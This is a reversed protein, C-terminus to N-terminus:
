RGIGLDYGLDHGQDYGLDYGHDHHPPDLEIAYPESDPVSAAPQLRPDDPGTHPNPDAIPWTGRARWTDLRAERDQDDGLTREHTDADVVGTLRTVKTEARDLSDVADGVVRQTLTVTATLEARRKRAFFGVNGLDTEATRLEDALRDLHRRARDREERARNLDGQHHRHEVPVQRAPHAADAKVWAAERAAQVPPDLLSHAARERGSTAVARALQALAGDLDPFPLQVGAPPRAAGKGDVQGDTPHPQRRDPWSRAATGTPTPPHHHPGADGTALEPATHVHNEHRGRTMAVYLHERDLGARALVVGIDATAGQAGDITAAWGYEAHAALYGPPLTTTGRGRLDEVVLGGSDTAALVRFRDGNRLTEGGIPVRATNKKAILVDGARWTRDETQGRTSASRTAVRVLDPGTVQGTAVAVARARANLANVDTWARALMLADHGHDTATRWRDFVADAADESSAEPHVRGRQAYVDLVTPDGARLRLTAAAEWPNAFRHLETLEIVQAGLTHTLHEFMGGPANVAGIQAPDGVLVLPTGTNVARATLHDLDATSLMSAEDVIVVERPPLFRLRHRAREPDDLHDHTLLWRAVTQGPAGTADSLESAARASPALATVQMGM